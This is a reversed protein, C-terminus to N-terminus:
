IVRQPLAYNPCNPNGGGYQVCRPPYEIFPDLLCWGGPAYDACCDDRIGVVREALRILRMVVQLRSEM